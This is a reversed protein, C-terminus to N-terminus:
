AGGKMVSAERWAEWALQVDYNTYMGPWAQSNDNEPYRETSKEFPPSSIWGEFRERMMDIM